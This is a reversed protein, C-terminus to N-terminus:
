RGSLLRDVEARWAAPELMGARFPRAAAVEDRVSLPDTVQAIAESIAEIEARRCWDQVRRRVHDPASGALWARASRLAAEDDLLSRVVPHATSDDASCYRAGYEPAAM